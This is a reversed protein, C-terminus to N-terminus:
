NFSIVRQNISQNFLTWFYAINLVLVLEIM